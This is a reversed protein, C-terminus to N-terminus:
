KFREKLRSLEEKTINLVSGHRKKTQGMDYEDRSLIRFEGGAMDKTVAPLYGGDTAFQDVMICWEDRDNFKFGAPGEVGTLNEIEPANLKTFPGESVDKGMDAMINKTTEDKSFRYYTGDCEM